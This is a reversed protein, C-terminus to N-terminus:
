QHAPYPYIEVGLKILSQLHQDIAEAQQATTARAENREQVVQDTAKAAELLEDELQKRTNSWKNKEKLLHDYDALNAMDEIRTKLEAIQVKQEGVKRALWPLYKFMSDVYDQFNGLTGAIFDECFARKSLKRLEEVMCDMDRNQKAM